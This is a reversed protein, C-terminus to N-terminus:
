AAVKEPTGVLRDQWERLAAKYKPMPDDWSITIEYGDADRGVTLNSLRHEAAQLARKPTKYLPSRYTHVGGEGEPIDENTVIALGRYERTHSDYDFEVRVQRYPQGLIYDFTEEVYLGSTNCVNCSFTDRSGLLFQAQHQRACEPSLCFGCGRRIRPVKTTPVFANSAADLARPSARNLDRMNSSIKKCGAFTM